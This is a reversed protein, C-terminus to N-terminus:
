VTMHHQVSHWGRWGGESWKCETQWERWPGKKERSPLFCILCSLFICSAGPARSALTVRWRQRSAWSGCVGYLTPSWILSYCLSPQIADSVWHVHIQAFEPPYHLVSSGSTSCVMPNCLIICSKAVSCCCYLCTFTYIYVYLNVSM